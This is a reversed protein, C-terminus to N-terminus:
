QNRLLPILGNPILLLPLCSDHLHLLFKVRLSHQLIPLPGTSPTLSATAICPPAPAPAHMDLLMPVLMLLKGIRGMVWRRVGVLVVLCRLPAAASRTPAFPPM